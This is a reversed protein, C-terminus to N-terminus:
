IGIACFADRSVYGNLLGFGYLALDTGGGGGRGQTLHGYDSARTSVDYDIAM